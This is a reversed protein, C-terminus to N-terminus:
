SPQHLIHAENCERAGQDPSFLRITHTFIYVEVCLTFRNSYGYGRFHVLHLKLWVQNSELRSNKPHAHDKHFATHSLDLEPLRLSHGPHDYYLIQSSVPQFLIVGPGFLKTLLGSKIETSKIMTRSM